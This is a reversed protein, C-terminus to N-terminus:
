AHFFHNGLCFLHSLSHELYFCTIIYNTKDIEANKETQQVNGFHWYVEHDNMVHMQRYTSIFRM